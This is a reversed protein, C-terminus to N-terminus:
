HVYGTEAEVTISHGAVNLAPVSSPRGLSDFSFTSASLAVDSPAPLSYPVTSGPQVLLSTACGSVYALTVSTPAVCVYVSRRQAVAQRQAYRLAAKVQESYWSAKSESNTFRPIAVAALIGALVMVVVLELLSFGNPRTM